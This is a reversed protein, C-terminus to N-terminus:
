AADAATILSPLKQHSLSMGTVLGLVTVVILYFKLNKGNMM